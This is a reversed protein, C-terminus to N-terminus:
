QTLLAQDHLVAPDIGDSSREIKASATLDAIKAEVAKQQIDAALEDRVTDLAPAASMRTENLKIIHWGFQTQIPDSVKGPELAVVADEFPKVMMGSGFWGLSGGSAASGDSSKEEALKAFDGGQDLEAKIAKAEDETAVLIHSANYEKAPEASAYKADYAKQLAEDTVAAGAVADVASGALYARRDNEIAIEDKKSLPEPVSEALATQQILQELIGKFLVDDPLKQYQEPLRSRLVIMNGVTIDIGDVTAVVTDATAPKSEAAAPATNGAPATGEAPPPVPTADQAFAPVVLALALGAGLCFTFTKQTM